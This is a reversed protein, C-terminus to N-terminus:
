HLAKWQPTGDYAFGEWSFGNEYGFILLLSENKVLEESHRTVKIIDYLDSLDKTPTNVPYTVLVKLRANTILLHCIEQYIGSRFTNEHEFAIQIDRFWYQNPINPLRDEKNYFLCDTSYYDQEYTLLNFKKGIQSVISNENGKILKTFERHNRWIKELSAKNLLVVELWLKFFNTATLNINM